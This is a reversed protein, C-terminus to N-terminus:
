KRMQVGGLGQEKRGGFQHTHWKNIQKEYTKDKDQRKEWREEAKDVVGEKESERPDDTDHM